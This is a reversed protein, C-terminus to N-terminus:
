KENTARRTYLNWLFFVLLYVIATFIYHHSIDVWRPHEINLWAILACRIANIIFIYPLGVAIFALRRRWTGPFCFLFSLYLVYLDLGNCPDAVGIIRRSGSMILACRVDNANAPIVYINDYFLSLIRGSAM